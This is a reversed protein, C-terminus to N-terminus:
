SGAVFLRKPPADLLTLVEGMASHLDNWAAPPTQWGASVRLVRRRTELDLQLSEAVRSAGESGTSCASGTSLAFGMQSLRAVWKRQDHKPMVFQSTNWLRPLGQHLVQVEPWMAQLKSEFGDRSAALTAVEGLHSQSIKLATVMAAIAAVNETGARRREEQAGGRLYPSWREDDPIVLVGVGKPGGFKHASATLYSTVGVSLDEQKGLWQVADCHYFLGLTDAQEAIERWPLLLGSENNAAMCSVLGVGQTKLQELQLQWAELDFPNKPVSFTTVEMGLVSLKAGVQVSPHELDSIAVHKLGRQLADWFVSNNGETAGSTFLLREPPVSLLEALEERQAELFHRTTAGERYLASANYWFRGETEVWSERAEPWMPTTANCDFYHSFSSKM